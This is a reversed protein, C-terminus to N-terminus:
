SSYTPILCRTLTSQTAGMFYVYGSYTTGDVAWAMAMRAGLNTTGQPQQYYAWPILVRNKLDFRNFNQLSNGSSNLYWFMGGNTNPDYTGCTGTTWTRGTNGYTIAQGGVGTSWSLTAIDLCDITSTAGGRLMYFASYRANKASDLSSLGYAWVTSVGVATNAAKAPIQLSAAGLTSGTNWAGDARFGGAAYTHVLTTAATNVVIDGIGEIVYTATSSPNVTWAASITYVTPTAATHSAIKRRQGAATPTATDNVIRIQFNAYENTQLSADAAAATGTLTTAGTATATMTGFFGQGPLKGLPTYLEDLVTMATDTAPTTLNTVTLAASYSNTAIDYYKMVSAATALLFVRGSLIEYRDGNAPTFSLAPSFTITPTTSATNATIYSEETKGSAGSSNGIIRIKFGTNDGRNALQNTGVTAPLATSLVVSTTTAGSTITGSPGSSPVFVCGAGAAFTGMAPSALALWEDAYPNYANLVTASAYQYILPHRDPGQRQDNALSVAVAHANLMNAAPVWMPLDHLSKFAQTTAM